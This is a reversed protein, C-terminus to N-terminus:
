STAIIGVGGAQAQAPPEGARWGYNDANGTFGAARRNRRTTGPASFSTAWAPTALIPARAYIPVASISSRIQTFM